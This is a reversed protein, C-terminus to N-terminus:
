IPTKTVSPCDVLFRSVANAISASFSVSILVNAIPIHYNKCGVEVQDILETVLTLEKIFNAETHISSSEDLVFFIDARLESCEAM